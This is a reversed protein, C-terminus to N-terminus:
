PDYGLEKAKAFDRAAEDSKGLEGYILGRVYYAEADQPNLRIAEDYDQIAQKYQGLHRGPTATPV